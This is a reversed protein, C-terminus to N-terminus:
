VDLAGHCDLLGLLKQQAEPSFRAEGFATADQDSAFLRYIMALTTNNAKAEEV